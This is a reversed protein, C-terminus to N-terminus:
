IPLHYWELPLFYLPVSSGTLSFSLFLTVSGAYFEVNLFSLYIADPGM